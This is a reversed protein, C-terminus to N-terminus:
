RPLVGVGASRRPAIASTFGYRTIVTGSGSLTSNVSYGTGITNFRGNTPPFGGGGGAASIVNDIITVTTGDGSLASVFINGSVLAVGSAGYYEKGKGGQVINYPQVAHITTGVTLHSVSITKNDGRVELSPLYDVIDCVTNYLSQLVKDGKQPKTPRLAM